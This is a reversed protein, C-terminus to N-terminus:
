GASSPTLLGIAWTLLRKFGLTNLYHFFYRVRVWRAKWDRGHSLAEAHEEQLDALLPLVIREMTRKSFVFDSFARLGIGPPLVIQPHSQGSSPGKSSSHSIQYVKTGKLRADALVQTLTRGQTLQHYRALATPDYGDSDLQRILRELELAEEDTGELYSCQQQYQEPQTKKM